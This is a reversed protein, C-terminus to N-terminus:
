RLGLAPLVRETFVQRVAAPQYPALLEASRRSYDDLNVQFGARIAFALSDASNGPVVLSRDLQTAIPLAEYPGESAVTM